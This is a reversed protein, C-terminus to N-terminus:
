ALGDRRFLSEFGDSADGATAGKDFVLNGLSEHERPDLGWRVREVIEGRAIEFDQTQQRLAAVEGLDGVCEADAILGSRVVAALDFGLQLGRAGGIQDADGNLVTQGIAIDATGSHESVASRTSLNAFRFYRSN